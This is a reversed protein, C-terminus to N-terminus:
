PAAAGVAAPAAKGDQTFILLGMGEPRVVAEPAEAPLSWAQVGRGPVTRIVNCCWARGPTVGDGTLAALPIAAEVVWETDEKHVAVFWRPDWTKDGWCDDAVCGRQDVEFHFCTAYNRDVDLLISVRDHGSLDADHTRPKLLAEGRGAPHTCRVAVYLFDHDHAVRAETKYDAASGGGADRLPVPAAAKWCADDLVGDLYPREDTGRCYVVAKPPAGSRRSLWLEAAAADRWPGAPQRSAFDTYWKDAADLQGLTRRVAQLPFQVSPDDAFVPGFSALLPEMDLGGQYWKRVTEAGAINGLRVGDSTGFEPMKPFRKNSKDGDADAPPMVAPAPKPVGFQVQGAAVFQGLESRRRAEGSCNHQILWRLADPTRPHAPYRQVMMLFTERALDWQGSRAFHQAVAFAARGAQEDPMDATMPGVQSLLREPDTLGTIPADAIARLEARRHIAKVAEPALEDEASQRRAFGGHALEVGQMLDHHDAAGALNAAILRFSREAPIAPAEDGLGAAATEAFERLTAELPASVATLDLMVPGDAKGDCRGYLKAAKWPELGLASIQEPFMKPDAADQFAQKMVEAVLGDAGDRDPADTVIVDPRWVRLALVAQRLMQEAAHGDHLPDWAPLLDDRGARALHSAVPFQWLTEAAAGGAQRVAAAFRPGDAARVSASSAPDPGTVRLAATLYGEQGGLLAVADLPTGAPRAHVFLAAARQGGRRQMKWTKGGDTTALISGLEGVAWGRQENSFFVGDLPLPQGTPQVDWHAGDDASHLVASGPRGVVWFQKGAGAVAHFDWDYPVNKPLGLEAFNWSSGAADTTLVLGGQGVAVGAKDHLRVGCLNRGGLSDMDVAHAKGNRVTGLRNWAGALAADGDATCDAALWSAARPGPVPLWSHGGDTTVFLGSPYHDSGDGALYGTKDDAFRVANLGPLANVLVRRWTVGGDQTCLLM